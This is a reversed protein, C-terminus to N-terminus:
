RVEFYQMGEWDSQLIVYDRQYRQRVHYLTIGADKKIIKDVIFDQCIFYYKTQDKKQLHSLECKLAYDMLELQKEQDNWNLSFKFTGTKTPHKNLM